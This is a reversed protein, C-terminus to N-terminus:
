PRWAERYDPHGAYPLALLRVTLCPYSPVEAAKGFHSHKAVCMGCVPLEASAEIVEDGDNEFWGIDRYLEFHEAIVRQQADVEALVLDPEGCECKAPDYEYGWCYEWHAPCGPDANHIHKAKEAREALRARLFTPLSPETTVHGM